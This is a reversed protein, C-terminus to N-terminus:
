DCVDQNATRPSAVKGGTTREGVGGAARAAQVFARLKGHDKKGPEREVGSAVDVGWPHFRQIAEGVNDPKLGGAIVISFKRGLLRVWPAAAPWNFTEGTGGRRGSSASDLVLARFIEPATKDSGLDLAAGSPKGAPGLVAVAKFLKVQCHRLAAARLLAQAFAVDEDGHLQVATLGAKEVTDLILESTQNLFVGIKEVAPPLAATIRGADRPSIRRPSPAFVFGLADAGAELAARADELNTNACIKIWM